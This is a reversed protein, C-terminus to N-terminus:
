GDLLCATTSSKEGESMLSRRLKTPTLGSVRRIMRGFDSQDNFGVCHAIDGIRMGPKQLQEKAMNFRVKDILEGYTVDYGHLRRTLTRVSTGMLKAAIEESPYGDPVYSKLVACLTDIYSLHSTRVASEQSLLPNEASGAKTDWCHIPRHMCSRPVAIYGAPQQTLIRCGPLISELIPPVLPSEIGIQDPVWRPGLFHHILGLFLGIQYAQSVAYGPVGRMGPYHMYLLYDDLHRHMGIDLDTAESSAKQMLRYMGLFLTPASEIERLLVANLKTDGVHAGVLWGLEPDEHRAVDDFFSWINLLPLFGNPDECFVPLGHRKLYRAVPVGGQRLFSEFAM